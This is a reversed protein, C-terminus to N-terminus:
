PAQTQPAPRHAVATVVAFAALLLNVVLAVVPAGSPFFVIVEEPRRIILWASTAINVTWLVGFFASGRRQMLVLLALGVAACVLYSAGIFGAWNLDGLADVSQTHQYVARAYLWFGAARALCVGWLGCTVALLLGLALYRRWRGRVPLLPETWASPREGPHSTRRTM